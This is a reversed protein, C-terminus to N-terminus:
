PSQTKALRFQMFVIIHISVGAIFMYLLGFNFEFLGYASIQIPQFIKQRSYLRLPTADVLGTRHKAMLIKHVESTCQISLSRVAECKSILCFLNYFGILIWFCRNVLHVYYKTRAGYEHFKLLYHILLSFNAQVLSFYCIIVCLLQIGFIRNMNNSTLNHLHSHIQSHAFLVDQCSPHLRTKRFCIPIVGLM